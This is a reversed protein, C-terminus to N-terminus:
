YGWRGLDRQPFPDYGVQELRSDLGIRIPVAGAAVLADAFGPFLQALADLGGGLLGHVHRGQPVGARPIPSVPLDDRELVVVQMLHPALAAASTLGGMGAGIVIARRAMASVNAMAGREHIDTSDRRSGLQGGVRSCVNM